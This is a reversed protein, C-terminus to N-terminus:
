LNNSFTITTSTAMPFISAMSIVSLLATVNYFNIPVTDFEIEIQSRVVLEATSCIVNAKFHTCVAYQMIPESLLRQMNITLAEISKLCIMDLGGLHLCVGSIFAENKQIYSAFNNFLLMTTTSTLELVIRGPYKAIENIASM